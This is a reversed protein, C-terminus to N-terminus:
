GIKEVIEALSHAPSPHQVVNDCLLKGIHSTSFMGIVRHTGTARDIQAVLAHQRGLTRLTAVIDGVASTNVRAADLVQIDSQPTMISAVTITARPLRTQQTVKIPREGMIDTTTILGIIEDIDNVVFLLRVGATKMKALATDIPTQPTTTVPTVSSFDTMVTIAPSDLQVLTMNQTTSSFTSNPQLPVAPLGTFTDFM